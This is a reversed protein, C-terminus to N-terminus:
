LKFLHIFVTGALLFVDSGLILWSVLPSVANEETYRTFNASDSDSDKSYPNWWTKAKNLDRQAQELAKRVSKENESPSLPTDLRKQYEAAMRARQEPTITCSDYTPTVVDIGPVVVDVATTEVPHSPEPAVIATGGGCPPTSGAGNWWLYFGFFGTGAFFALGIWDKFQLSKLKTKLLHFFSLVRRPTSFNTSFSLSPIRPYKCPVVKAEFTKGPIKKTVFM